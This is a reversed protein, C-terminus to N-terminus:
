LGGIPMAKWTSGREQLGLVASRSNVGEQEWRKVMAQGVAEATREPSLALLTPGAGSIVCGWAGAEMAAERVSRGGQILGWRYPEHIRDHM